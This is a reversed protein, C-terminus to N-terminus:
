VCVPRALKLLVILSTIVMTFPWSTYPELPCFLFLLLLLLPALSLLLVLPVLSPLINLPGSGLAEPGKLFPAGGM